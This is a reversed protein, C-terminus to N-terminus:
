EAGDPAPTVAPAAPEVLSLAGSPCLRVAREVAPHLAAPPEPDLLVVTGDDESQDFVAPVTLACMGASVCRTTDAVIKM